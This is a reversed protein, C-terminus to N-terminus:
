GKRFYCVNNESKYLDMVFGNRIILVILESVRKEGIIDPHFEILIKKIPTFDIIPLLEDEGGEIDIVMFTSKHSIIEGNVDRTGVRIKEFRGEREVTSSSWFDEKLCFDISGESGALIINNITPSVGNLEYTRKIKEVMKPNGEYSVVNESGVRLSCFTSILGIGGGLEMVRDEKELVDDLIRLEQEEYAGSYFYNRLVDSMELNGIDLKIGNITIISPRLLRRTM